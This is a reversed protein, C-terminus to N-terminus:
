YFAGKIQLSLDAPICNLKEKTITPTEDQKKPSEEIETSEPM